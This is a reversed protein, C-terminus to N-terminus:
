IYCFQYGRPLIISRSINIPGYMLANAILSSVAILNGWLVSHTIVAGGLTLHFRSLSFFMILHTQHYTKGDGFHDYSKPIFILGHLKLPQYTFRKTDLHILESFIGARQESRVTEGLSIIWPLSRQVLRSTKSISFKHPVRSWIGHKMECLWRGNPISYCSFCKTWYYPLIQLRCRYTGGIRCHLLCLRQLKKCLFTLSQILEM